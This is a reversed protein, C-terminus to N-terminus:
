DIRRTFATWQVKGSAVLRDTEVRRRNVREVL